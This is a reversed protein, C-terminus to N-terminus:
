ATIGRTIEIKENGMCAHTKFHLQMYRYQLKKFSEVQEHYTPVEVGL